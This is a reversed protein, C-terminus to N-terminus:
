LMGAKKLPKCKTKNKNPDESQRSDNGYLIDETEIQEENSVTVEFFLIKWIIRLYLDKLWNCIASLIAIISM